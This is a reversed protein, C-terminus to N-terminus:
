QTTTLKPFFINNDSDMTARGTKDNITMNINQQKKDIMEVYNKQREEEPNIVRSEGDISVGMDRRFQEIGKAAESAWDMGTIKSVIELIQQLPLLVIDLLTTGIAIIGDLISGQKFATVIRNWNNYFSMVLGIMIALAPMFIALLANLAAGWENYKVIITTVFAILLVIGIIILGIPNALMAANLAIQTATYLKTVANWVLVAEAVLAIIGSITSVLFIFGAIALTATVITKTLNPNEKIWGIIGKLIPSIYNLLDSIVPLLETGIVIALAKFNNQAKELKAATTSEKKNYEDVLSTGAMFADNSITQLESVRGINNGLAGLVKITEQTGIGLKGLTKALEDPKLGNLSTAFNKAFATPNTALLDKAQQTSIHMQKAFKGISEGAVLFFRTLGGSAVQADLGSEELFTGLALTDQISPRLASPLQGMRLAFEAINASTGSGKAGLENIASGTRNIADAIGIGQTEKFLTKIKSVSTVAEEVGGSFDSGIAVNFKNASETFELLEKNAIGLQGGLEGIKLRDEIGTRTDLALLGDGFKKLDSGALGTTKGVDALKDEFKIAENAALGLPALIALGAVAAKKAFNSAGESVGKWDISNMSEKAKNGFSMISASMKRVPATIQDIASFITPITFAM